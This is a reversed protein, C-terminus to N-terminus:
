IPEFQTIKWDSGVKVFSIRVRSGEIHPEKNGKKRTVQNVFALVVVSKKSASVISLGPVTAQTVIQDKTANPTITTDILSTISTRFKGTTLSRVRERYESLASYDYSLVQPTVTGALILVTQGANADSERNRHEIFLFGSVSLAIVLVIASVNAVVNSASLKLRRAVVLDTPEPQNPPLPETSM